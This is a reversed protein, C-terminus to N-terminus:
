SWGFISDNFTFVSLRTRLLMTMISNDTAPTVSSDLYSNQPYSDESILFIVSWDWRWMQNCVHRHKKSRRCGLSKRESSQQKIKLIKTTNRWIAVIVCVLIRKIRPLFDWWLHQFWKKWERIRKWFLSFPAGPCFQYIRLQSLERDTFKTPSSM